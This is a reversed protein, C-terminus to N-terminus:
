LKSGFAQPHHCISFIMEAITNALSKWKYGYSDQAMIFIIISMEIVSSMQFSKLFLSIYQENSSCSLSLAGHM